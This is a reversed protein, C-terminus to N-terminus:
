RKFIKTLLAYLEPHKQQLLDPRQFFYESVVAFFEAKNTAGYPNIDSKHKLIEGINEQILNLWPMVYKKNLLYEPVGDVAGDLKDVLHVFEHIATNGKGTKNLFDQRLEHKSLIMMNQYAGEGVMGLTTRDAGEQRFQQNFSDPYLLVDKLNLYQWDSFGFIPIIASAGVLVKDIAEVGTKVGTIRTTALFQQIRSEFEPKRSDDLENYFDVYEKLIQRYEVPFPAAITPKKKTKSFLAVLLLFLLAVVILVILVTDPM